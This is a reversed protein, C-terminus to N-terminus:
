SHMIRTLLVMIRTLLVMISTLLAILTIGESQMYDSVLSPVTDSDEAIAQLVTHLLLPIM